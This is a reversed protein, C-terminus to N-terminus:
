GSPCIHQSVVVFPLSLGSFFINEPQDLPAAEKLFLTEASPRDPERNENIVERRFAIYM